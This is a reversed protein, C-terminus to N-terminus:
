TISDAIRAQDHYDKAKHVTATGGAAQVEAVLAEADAKYRVQRPFFHTQFLHVKPLKATVIYGVNNRRM